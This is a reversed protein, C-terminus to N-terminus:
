GGHGYGQQKLMEVIAWHGLSAAVRSPYRQSFGAAEHAEGDAFVMTEWLVPPGHRMHNHDLGLFVTSVELRGVTTQKIVINDRREMWRAWTLLDACPVAKGEADMIYRGFWRRVSAPEIGDIPLM